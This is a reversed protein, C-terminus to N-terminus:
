KIKVLFMIGKSAGYVSNIDKASIHKMNQNRMMQMFKDIHVKTSCNNMM